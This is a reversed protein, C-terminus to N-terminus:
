RIAIGNGDYRVSTRGLFVTTSLGKGRRSVLPAEQGKPQVTMIVFFNDDADISITDTWRGKQVSIRPTAPTVVTARLTAGNAAHLQFGNALLRVDKELTHMLWRRPPAKEIEDVVALLVPAGSRGSYDVAWARRARIGIDDTTVLRQAQGQPPAVTLVADLNVVISGSGDPHVTSTEVRGGLWGHTGPVFVINERDRAPAGLDGADRLRQVVWQGGLAALRFSGADASSATALSPRVNATFGALCDEPGTWANRLLLIGSSPDSWTRGVVVEPRLPGEGVLAGLLVPIADMGKAVGLSKDGKAGYCQDFTWLLADRSAADTLALLNALDGSTHTLPEWRHSPEAQTSTPLSGLCISEVPTTGSAQAPTLALMGLLASWKRAESNRLLDDHSLRRHALLFAGLGSGLAQRLPRIGGRPWGEAGQDALMRSLLRQCNLELAAAREKLNADQSVSLACLGAAAQPLSSLVPIPDAASAESYQSILLTANRLLRSGLKTEEEETRLSRSLDFAIASAALASSEAVIGLAEGKGSESLIRDLESLSSELLRNSAELAGKEQCLLGLLAEAVAAQALGDPTSPAQRVRQLAERWAKGAPGEIRARLGPIDEAGFFLRPGTGTTDARCALTLLAAFFLCSARSFMKPFLPM